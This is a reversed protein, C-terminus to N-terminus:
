GFACSWVERPGRGRRRMVVPLVLLNRIPHPVSKTVTLLSPSPIQSTKALRPLAPPQGDWDSAVQRTTEVASREPTSGWASISCSLPMRQRDVRTARLSLLSTSTSEQGSAIALAMSSASSSVHAGGATAPGTSPRLQGNQLWGMRRSAPQKTHSLHKNLEHPYHQIDSELVCAM